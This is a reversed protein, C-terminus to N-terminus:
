LGKHVCSGLVNVVNPHHGVKKMTEFEEQFQKREEDPIGDTFMM